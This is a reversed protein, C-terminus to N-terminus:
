FSVDWQVRWRTDRPGVGNTESLGLESIDFTLKNDHGAFYLNFALTTERLTDGPLSTNQDVKALRLALEVPRTWDGISWRWAKGAQAYYGKLRASGGNLQDEIRKVHYEQQVSWGGYQWAFEQLWQQVAYQNGIGNAFGDLQGGGESSFRTYPGKFRAAAIALTGSPSARFEFDSQSFPLPEGAFNWQYRGIWMTGDGKGGSKGPDRGDGEMLGLFYWADYARGEGIRGAATIGRQRDLTFARTVISREVFQQAGSSDVRERNYLVKYQGIRLRFDERQTLDLRLDLLRPDGALEHEYYYGLKQSLITGKAKLRARNLEFDGGPADDFDDARRPDSDFPTSYRFQTRLWLHISTREDVSAFRIGKDGRAVSETKIEDDLDPSADDQAKAAAPAACILACGATIIHRKLDTSRRAM